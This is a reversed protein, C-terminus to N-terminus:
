KKKIKSTLSIKYGESSFFVSKGAEEFYALVDGNAFVDYIVGNEIHLSNNWIIKDNVKFNPKKHVNNLLMLEETHTFCRIICKQEDNDIFVDTTGINRIVTGTRIEENKGYWKVRDGLKFKM